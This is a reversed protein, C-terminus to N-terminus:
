SVAHLSQEEAEDRDQKVDVSRGLSIHLDWIKKALFRAYHRLFARGAVPERKHDAARADATRDRCLRDHRCLAVAYGRAIGSRHLRGVFRGAPRRVRSACSRDADRGAVTRRAGAAVRSDGAAPVGAPPRARHRAVAGAEARKAARPRQGALSLADATGPGRVIVDCVDKGLERSFRALFHELWCRSHGRQARAAAAAQDHLRQAPLVPRRPLARPRGDAELDRNTAAIIRVDTEITENGGVREFRQGAARAPGQEADAADHRRDRRPVAHRRQVARVQRDAQRDAGTFAGKEHGFLESELLTEPIAACNVALFPEDARPSHQYIARAVLEKGTGSEGRILVNVNQPAVRGIAKYVEQMAPSRGVLADSEPVDTADGRGAAGARAPLPPDRLAQAM